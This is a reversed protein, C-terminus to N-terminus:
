EAADDWVVEVNDAEDLIEVMVDWKPVHVAASARGRILLQGRSICVIFAVVLTLCCPGCWAPLAPIRCSFRFTKGAKLTCFAVGCFM